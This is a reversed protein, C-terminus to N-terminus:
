RQQASEIAQYLQLERVETEKNLIGALVVLDAVEDDCRWTRQVTTRIAEPTEAPLAFLGMKCAKVWYLSDLYSQKEAEYYLMGRSEAWKAGPEM